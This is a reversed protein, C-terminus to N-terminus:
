TALSKGAKELIHVIMATTTTKGHTGAVAVVKKNNRLFNRAIWEPGSIFSRRKRCIDEFFPNGRRVVNGIIYLDASREDCSADYGEHCRVGASALQGAMPEYSNDDSGEVQHGLASSIQAVGGMFTGCVGLVHIRLGLKRGMAMPRVSSEALMRALYEEHQRDAEADEEIPHINIDSAQPLANSFKVADSQLELATQGGTLYMYVEALIESDILANHRPRRAKVDIGARTAIADLSNRGGPYMRAAIELTDTVKAVVKSVPPM